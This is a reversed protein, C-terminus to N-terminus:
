RAKEYVLAQIFDGYFSQSQRAIYKAEQFYPAMNLLSTAEVHSFVKFFSYMLKLLSLKWWKGKKSLNFDVFLWLGKKNLMKDLKWFVFSAKEAKFNDFLFPTLVVDFSADSDVDEIAQNVFDVKLSTLNRKKSIEIMKESIEVYVIRLDQLSKKAIEELIWGTGGGVILIRNGSSLYNLQRIQAERQSRFFVVSSLSDYFGAVKDYNNKRNAQM